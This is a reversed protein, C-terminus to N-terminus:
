LILNNINWANLKSDIVSPGAYATKAVKYIMNGMGAIKNADVNLYYLTSMTIRLDVEQLTANNLYAVTHTIGFIM